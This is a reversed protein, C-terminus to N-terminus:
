KQFKIISKDKTWTAFEIGANENINSLITEAESFQKQIEQNM